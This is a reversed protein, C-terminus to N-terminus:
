GCGGDVGTVRLEGTTVGAENLADLGIIDVLGAMFCRTEDQFGAEDVDIASVAAEVYDRGPETHSDRSEHGGCAVILLLATVPLPARM